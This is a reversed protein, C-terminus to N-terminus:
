DHILVRLGPFGPMPAVVPKRRDWCNSRRGHARARVETWDSGMRVSQWMVRDLFQGESASTSVHDQVPLGPRLIVAKLKWQDELKCTLTTDGDTSGM